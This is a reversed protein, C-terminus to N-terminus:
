KTVPELIPVIVGDDRDFSEDFGNPVRKPIKNPDDYQGDALVGSPTMIMYVQRFLGKVVLLHLTYSLLFPDVDKIERSVAGPDIVNWDKHKRVWEGLRIVATKLEPNENALFDFNTPLM